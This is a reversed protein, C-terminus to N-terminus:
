ASVRVYEDSQLSPMACRVGVLEAEGIVRNRMSCEQLESSKTLSSLFTAVIRPDFQSGACRQLEACAEMASRPEHYARRQVMADYSDAVAIIRAALPIEEDSLKNPYGEGDWREHHTLVVPALLVFVGGANLLMQQGIAPHCSVVWQEYEDLPGRKNLIAGPVSAKGIDHLLAALCVLFVEDEALQLERAVVEALLMVRQAHAKTSRDYIAQLSQLISMEPASLSNLMSVTQVSM